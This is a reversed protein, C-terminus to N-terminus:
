IRPLHGIQCVIRKQTNIETREMNQAVGHEDDPSDTTDTCGRTYTV